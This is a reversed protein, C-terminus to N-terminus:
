LRYVCSHCVTRTLVRARRHEPGSGASPRALYAVLGSAALLTSLVPAPLCPAPHQPQQLSAGRALLRRVQLETIQDLQSVGALECLFVDEDQHQESLVRWQEVSAQAGVHSSPVSPLPTPNERSSDMLALAM